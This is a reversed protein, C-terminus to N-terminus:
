YLGRYGLRCGTNNAPPLASYAGKMQFLWRECAAQTRFCGETAIGTAATAGNSYSQMRGGSFLGWWVHAAEPTGSLGVCTPTTAELPQATAAGAMGALALAVTAIPLIARM